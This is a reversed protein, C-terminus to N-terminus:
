TITVKGGIAVLGSISSAATEVAFLAEIAAGIIPAVIAYGTSTLHIGDSNNNSDDRLSQLNLEAYGDSFDAYNTRVLDSAGQTDVPSTNNHFDTCVLVKAGAAQADLCLTRIKDYVQSSNSGFNYQNVYEWVVVVTNNPTIRQEIRSQVNSDFDTQMQDVRWGNIARNELYFDGTAFADMMDGTWTDGATLSDGLTVIVRPYSMGYADFGLSAMGTALSTSGSSFLAVAGIDVQSNSSYGSSLWRAALAVRDSDFTGSSAVPESSWDGLWSSENTGDWQYTVVFTIGIGPYQGLSLRSNNRYAACFEIGGSGQYFSAETVSDYDDSSGASKHISLQGCLNTAGRFAGIISATLTTGGVAQSSDHVNNSGNYRIVRHGNLINTKVVPSAGSWANDVFNAGVRSEWTAVSSGDAGLEDDAVAYQLISPQAEPDFM